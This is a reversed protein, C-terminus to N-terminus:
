SVTELPEIEATLRDWEKMLKKEERNLKEQQELLANLDAKKENQYIDPAGLKSEVDDKDKIIKELRPEIEQLRKKLPKLKRHRANREEAERRKRAKDQKGKSPTGEKTKKDIKSQAAAQKDKEQEYDTYNGHYIRVKGADVEWVQNIIGDLFFRDHSIAVLTGDFDSLAAALVECSRIDLHNTPEDVLLLPAPHVLLRALALRAKEGGSLVSVKKEVDDGSFLFAGLISRKRTLMMSGSVEDLSEIVTSGGKLTEM